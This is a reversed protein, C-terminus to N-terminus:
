EVTKLIIKITTGRNKKSEIIFEGNNKITFDECLYLGLGTGPEKDTGQTSQLTKHEKFTKLQKETMGVGTDSVSIITKDDIKVADVKIKGGAPTFKISNSVLNRIIIILMEYDAFVATNNHNFSISINKQLAGAKSIDEIEKFVTKLSVNNVKPKINGGQNNVWHLLNIILDNMRNSTQSIINIYKIISEKDISNFSDKLIQSFSIIANLPSRLDHAIISFTKNRAENFEKLRDNIAKIEQNQNLVVKTQEKLEATRENVLRELKEKDTQLKKTRLKILIVIIIVVIIFSLIYFAMTNYFPPTIRIHLIAPENNWVNDPNAAKVKFVYNGKGLNTYHAIPQGQKCTKWHKDFGELIYKYKNKEFYEFHLASFEIAFDKDKHSLTINSTYELLRNLIIRGNVKQLPEVKINEIYLNTLAVQPAVNNHKIHIPNFYSLGNVGGFYINDNKDKFSSNYNFIRGQLGDKKDFINISLSEPNFKIVGIGSCLWLNGLRDEEINNILNTPFGSKINYVIFKASDKDTLLNLGGNNTGLWVRNKKDKYISLVLNSSLSNSDYGDNEIFQEVEVNDNCIFLGTQEASLWIKNDVPKILVIDMYNFESYDTFNKTQPNYVSLGDNLYGAWIATDNQKYLAWVHNHKDIEGHPIKKVIVTNNNIFTCFLLGHGYTGAFFSNSSYKCMSKVVINELFESKSKLQSIKETKLNIINIGGGDTGGLLITDNIQELCLVSKNSLKNGNIYLESVTTFKLSSSNYINVGTDYSGVWVTHDKTQVICYVANSGISYPNYPSYKFTSILEGKNNIISLGNGDTGIWINNDICNIASIIADQLYHNIVKDTEPNYVYVGNKETGIWINNKKDIFLRGSNFLPMPELVQKTYEIQQTKFDKTNFYILTSRYGLIYLNNKKDLALASIYEHTNDVSDYAVQKNNIPYRKFAHSKVNFYYLGDYSGLWLNGSSDQVMSTIDNSELGPSNEPKFTTFKETVPDLISFGEDMITLYIMGNDANTIQTVMFGPVSTSDAYDYEFLKYNIGDYKVLGYMSGFWIFGKSDQTLCTVSSIPLGNERDIHEFRINQADIKLNFAILLVLILIKIYKFVRM